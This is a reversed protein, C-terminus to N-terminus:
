GTRVPRLQEGFFQKIRGMLWGAPAMALGADRLTTTLRSRGLIFGRMQLASAQVQAVKTRAADSYAALADQVHAGSALESALSEASLMALASGMGSLFTPCAAADGLLAVRGLAISPLRVMAITDVYIFSDADIAAFLARVTPHFPAYERAFFARTALPSTLQTRLDEDGSHYVLAAVRKPGLPIVTVTRGRGLFVATELLDHDCSVELGVASGGFPLVGVQGFLRVRLQSHVGDAGIVADFRDVSGDSLTVTVGEADQDLASLETGFRLPTVDRVREHLAAVLDARRLMMYGGLAGALDPQAQRRLLRGTATMFRLSRPPLSRQECGARIGLRDLVRVGDGKLAIFHGLARFSPAREIVLCEINSAHLFQALAYGAVGGGVILIRM